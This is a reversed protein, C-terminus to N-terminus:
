PAEVKPCLAQWSGTIREQLVGDIRLYERITYDNVSELLNRLAQREEHVIRGVESVAGPHGRLYYEARTCLERGLGDLEKSLSTGHEQLYQTLPQSDPTNALSLVRRVSNARDHKYIRLAKRWLNCLAKRAFVLAKADSCPFEFFNKVDDMTKPRGNSIDIDLVHPLAFIDQFIPLNLHTRPEGRIVMIPPVLNSAACLAILQEASSVATTSVEMSIVLGVFGSNGSVIRKSETEDCHVCIEAERFGGFALIEGIEESPNFLILHKTPTLEMHM